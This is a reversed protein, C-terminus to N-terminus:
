TASTKKVFASPRTLGSSVYAVPPTMEPLSTLLFASSGSFLLTCTSNIILAAFCSWHPLQRNSLFFFYFFGQCNQHDQKICSSRRKRVVQRLAQHPFNSIIILHVDSCVVQFGPPVGLPAMYTHANSSWFLKLSLSPCHANISRRYLLCYDAPASEREWNWRFNALITLLPCSGQSALLGSRQKKVISTGKQSLHLCSGEVPHRDRHKALTRSIAM